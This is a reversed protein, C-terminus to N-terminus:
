ASREPILSKDLTIDVLAPNDTGTPMLALYLKLGHRQIGAVQVLKGAVDPDDGPFVIGHIELAKAVPAVNLGRAVVMFEGEPQSDDGPFAMLGVIRVIGQGKLIRALRSSAEGTGAVIMRMPPSAGAVVVTHLLLLTMGALGGGLLFVARSFVFQKFLLGTGLFVGLSVGMALVRLPTDIRGGRYSGIAAQGALISASLVLHWTWGLPSAVYNGLGHLGLWTTAVVMFVSNLVVFDFALRRVDRLQNAMVNGTALIAAVVNLFLELVPGVGLNKRSFVVMARYFDMRAGWPRTAASQGKHHVISTEGCYWIERGTRAVKLCLDLDEAYLFYDEDFGGVDTFADRTILLFSGSVAEVPYSQAPDLYTLNYRGFVKSSPFLFSLGSLRSLAVGLTPISRRCALQLCGEGDIIRCGVIGARPRQKAFRLVTALTDPYVVTDPNLFLIMGGSSRAAGRNCAISFGLNRDMSLFAVEPYAPALTGVTGDDSANDVVIVEFTPGGPDSLRLSDLCSRLRERVKYSVIVISLDVSSGSM